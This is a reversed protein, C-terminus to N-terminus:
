SVAYILWIIFLVLSATSLLSSLSVLVLGVIAAGITGIFFLLYGVIFFVVTLIGTIVWSKFLNSLVQSQNKQSNQRQQKTIRKKKEKKIVKKQKKKKGKKKKKKKKRKKKVDSWQEGIYGIVIAEISKIKEIEHESQELAISHIAKAEPILIFSFLLLFLFIYKKM